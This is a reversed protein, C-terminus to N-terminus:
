SNASQDRLRGMIFWYAISGLVAPVMLRVVRRLCLEEFTPPFDTGDDHRFMWEVVPALTIATLIGCTLYYYLSDWGRWQSIVASIGAPVLALWLALMAFICAGFISVDIIQSLRYPMPVSSAAGTMWAEIGYQVGYVFASAGVAVLYAGAFNAVDVGIGPSANAPPNSNALLPERREM